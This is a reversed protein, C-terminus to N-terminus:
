IGAKELVAEARKVSERRERKSRPQPPQKVTDREQLREQFRRIAERSTFRQGGEIVSELLVGRAGRTMWRWVTTAAPRSRFERSAEVASLLSEQLLDPM